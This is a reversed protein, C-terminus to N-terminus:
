GNAPLDRHQKSWKAVGHVHEHAARHVSGHGIPSGEEDRGRGKTCGQTCPRAVRREGDLRLDGLEAPFDRWNCEITVRADDTDNTRTVLGRAELWLRAKKVTDCNPIGYLTVSM